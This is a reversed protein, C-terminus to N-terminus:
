AADNGGGDEFFAMDKEREIEFFKWLVEKYNLDHQVFHQIDIKQLTCDSTEQYFAYASFVIMRGESVGFTAKWKRMGLHGLDFLELEKPDHEETSYDYTKM